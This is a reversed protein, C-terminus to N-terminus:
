SNFCLKEYSFVKGCLCVREGYDRHFRSSPHFSVRLYNRDRKQIDETEAIHMYNENEKSHKM